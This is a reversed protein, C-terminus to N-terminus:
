HWRATSDLDYQQQNYKEYEKRMSKATPPMHKKKRRVMGLGRGIKGRTPEQEQEKTRRGKLHLIGYAGDLVLVLSCGFDGFTVKGRHNKGFIMEGEGTKRAGWKVYSTRSSKDFENRLLKIHGALFGINFSAWPRGTEDVDIWMYYRKLERPKKYGDAEKCEIEWYSRSFNWSGGNKSVALMQEHVLSQWGTLKEENKRKEQELKRRKKKREREQEREGVKDQYRRIADWKWALLLEDQDFLVHIVKRTIGRNDVAQVIHDGESYLALKLVKNENKKNDMTGFYNDLFREVDSWCQRSLNGKYNDYQAKREALEDVKLRRSEGKRKRKEEQREKEKQANKSLLSKRIQELAVTDHPTRKLAYLELQARVEEKTMKSTGKPMYFKMQANYWKLPQGHDNKRKSMKRLLGLTDSHLMLTQVTAKQRMNQLFVDLIEDKKKSKSIKIGLVKTSTEVLYNKTVKSLGPYVSHLLKDPPVLEYGGATLNDNFSLSFGRTSM